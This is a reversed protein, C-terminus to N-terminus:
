SFGTCELVFVEDSLNILFRPDLLTHLVKRPHSAKSIRRKPQNALLLNSDQIMLIPRVKKNYSSIM